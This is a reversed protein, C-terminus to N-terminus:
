APIEVFRYVAEKVKKLRVLEDYLEKDLLANELETIQLKLKNTVQKNPTNSMLYALSHNIYKRNKQIGNLYLTINNMVLDIPQANTFQPIDTM